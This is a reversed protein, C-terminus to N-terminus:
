QQLGTQAAPRLRERLEQTVKTIEELRDGNRGTILAYENVALIHLGVEDIPKQQGIQSIPELAERLSIDLNIVQKEHLTTLMAHVEQSTITSM